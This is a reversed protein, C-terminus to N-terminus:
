LPLRMQVGNQAPPASGNRPLRISLLEDMHSLKELKVHYSIIGHRKEVVRHTAVDEGWMWGLLEVPEFLACVYCIRIEKRVFEDCKHKEVLLGLRLRHTKVDVLYIGDYTPLRFDIGGDGQPRLTTDMRLWFRNGFEREGVLGVYEKDATLHRPQGIRQVAAREDALARLDIDDNIM